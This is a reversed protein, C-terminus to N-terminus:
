FILVEWLLLAGRCDPNLWIESAGGNQTRSEQASSSFSQVCALQLKNLGESTWIMSMDSSVRGGAKKKRTLEKLTPYFCDPLTRDAWYHDALKEKGHHNEVEKKYGSVFNM